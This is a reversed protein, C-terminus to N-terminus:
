ECIGRNIEVVRGRFMIERDNDERKEKRGKRLGRGGKM